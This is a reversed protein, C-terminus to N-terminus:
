GTGCGESEAEALGAVMKVPWDVVSVHFEEFAVETDTSLPIPFTATFPLMAM